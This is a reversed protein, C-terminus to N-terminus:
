PFSVSFWSFGPPFAMFGLTKMRKWSNEARNRHRKRDYHRSLNRLIRNPAPDRAGRERPPDELLGGEAELAVQVHDQLDHLVVRVAEHEGGPLQPTVM